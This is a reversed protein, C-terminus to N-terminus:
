VGGEKEVGKGGRGGGQAIIQTQQNDEQQKPRPIAGKVLSGHNQTHFYIFITLLLHTLALDPVLV